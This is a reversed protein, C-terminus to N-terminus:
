IDVYRFVVGISSNGNKAIMSFTINGDMCLKQKQLLNISAKQM